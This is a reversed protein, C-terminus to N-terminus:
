KGQPTKKMRSRLISGIKNAIAPRDLEELDAVSVYPAPRDVDSAQSYESAYASSLSKIVLLEWVSLFCEQLTVPISQDNETPLYQVVAHSYCKDAWPGIEKWDLGCIGMGTHGVTGAEHWLDLLYECDEIDPMELLYSKSEISGSALQERRSKANDKPIADLWAM